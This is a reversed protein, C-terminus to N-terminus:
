ALELVAARLAELCAAIRPVRVRGNPILAYVDLPQFRHGPLVRELRGEREASACEGAPRVGIGLGAYTADGLTRSDDAEYGGRVRVVLERGRRDVLVWEDQPPSCLLRLCRHELLDTPARPRGRADLYSPAAALVWAVRGLRRGVFSSEPPQGVIVGIDIGGAVLDIPANTIRTQVSLQPHEDLLDRLRELLPPTALTSPVAIRVTGRLGGSTPRLEEEAAELEVLVRSVRTYFSRGEETPAVRRTTRTFLSAGLEGELRQVRLSVANTTLALRRSAATFGGTEYVAIFARLEDLSASVGVIM